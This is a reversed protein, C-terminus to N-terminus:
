DSPAILYSRNFSDLSVLVCNIRQLDATPCKLVVTIDRVESFFQERDTFLRARFYLWARLRLIALTSM